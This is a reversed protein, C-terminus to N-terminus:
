ILRFSYGCYIYIHHKVIIILVIHLTSLSSVLKPPVKLAKLSQPTHLLLLWRRRSIFRRRPRRASTNNGFSSAGEEQLRRRKTGNILAETLDSFGLFITSSYFSFLFQKKHCQLSFFFSAELNSAFLPLTPAMERSNTKTQKTARSITYDSSETGLVVSTATPDM